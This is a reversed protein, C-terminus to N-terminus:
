LGRKKDTDGSKRICDVRYIVFESIELYRTCLHYLRSLNEIKM